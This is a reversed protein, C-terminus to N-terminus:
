SLSSPGNDCLLVKLVDKQQARDFAAPAQGLSYSDSIMDAVNVRGAALMELAPGFPGCRSGILTVENVVVPATDLSVAGHTTSKLVVTGLPRVMSIAQPLGEPSGTAEVVYDYAAKPLKSGRLEGVVGRKEVIRIKHRHRGFLHVRAGRAQLVQAILLGLKGDGLVAVESGPPITVQAAIECAAALPEVFVAHLLPIGPPVVHLNREPLTLLEAFAGPHRVIGLVTRHPCHRGLGRRCWSCRSCNLNIEGVVRKGILERSGSLVEGVFEHGPIGRFGHYGRLLEIDTNCIGAHLMRILAFGQRPAPRPAPRLTVIGKDLYVALM